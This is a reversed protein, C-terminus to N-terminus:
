SCIVYSRHGSITSIQEASTTAIISRGPFTPRTVPSFQFLSFRVIFWGHIAGTDPVHIDVDFYDPQPGSNWADGLVKDESLQIPVDGHDLVGVSQFCVYDSLGCKKDPLIDLSKVECLKNVDSQPTSVSVLNSVVRNSVVSQSSPGHVVIGLPTQFAYSENKNKKLLDLPQFCNAYDQGILLDVNGDVNAIVDINYLHPYVTVDLKYSKGPIKVVCVNKKNVSYDHDMSKIDFQFNQIKDEKM